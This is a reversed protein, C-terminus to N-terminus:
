GKSSFRRQHSLYNPKQFVVRGKGIETPPTDSVLTAPLERPIKSDGAIRTVFVERQGFGGHDRYNAVVEEFEGGVPHHGPQPM